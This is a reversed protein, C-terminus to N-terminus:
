VRKCFIYKDGWAADEIDADYDSQALDYSIEKIVDTLELNEIDFASAIKHSGLVAGLINGTISGTSDSDGDHNVSMRIASAFDDKHRLTCCVAIAAAEEGVWGEGLTFVADEDSLNSSALKVASEILMKFEEAHPENNFLKCTIDLSKLINDELAHEGYFDTYVLRNILLALFGAPIYGLPHGHTLAAAEAGIRCVYSELDNDYINRPNLYLGVPAVRMAGGCGKSSNIHEEITGGTESDSIATLCTAGPARCSHLEPVDYIWSHKKTLIRGNQTSLWDKYGLWIYDKWEGIVGRNIAMTFGYLLANATFLTMQTDDSILAISKSFNQIGKEGYKQKIDPLRTFEVEYGLADGVAGGLLSGYIKEKLEM